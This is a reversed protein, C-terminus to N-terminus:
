FVIFYELIVKCLGARFLLSAVLHLFSLYENGHEIDITSNALWFLALKLNYSEVTEVSLVLFQHYLVCLVADNAIIKAESMARLLLYPHGGQFFVEIFRNRHSLELSMAGLHEVFNFTVTKVDAVHKLSVVNLVDLHGFHGFGVEGCDFSACAFPELEEVIQELDRDTGMAHYKIQVSYLFDIGNFVNVLHLVGVAHYVCSKDHRRGRIFDPLALLEEAPDM